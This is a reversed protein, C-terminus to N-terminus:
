IMHSTIWRWATHIESDLDEKSGINRIVLDARSLMEERSIQSAIRARVDAEALGLYKVSREVALEEPADVAIIRPVTIHGPAIVVAADLVIVDTPKARKIAQNILDIVPPHVINEVQQRAQADKFISQAVKHRDLKGTKSLVQKGFFEVVADFISQGPQQLQRAIEDADLVLAGRAALGAAVTSKGAGMIGLLGVVLPGSTETNMRVYRISTM